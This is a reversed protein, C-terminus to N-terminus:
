RAPDGTEGDQGGNARDKADQGNELRLMMATEDCADFKPCSICVRWVKEPLTDRDIVSFGNREFFEKEYTLTFLKRVGLARADEVASGVLMRGIGQGTMEPTIALSRVEALDAWFLDVAVCGALRGADNEAVQFARLSGYIDELSRHLMRGQEAYYNVLEVIAAADAVKAPRIKMHSM